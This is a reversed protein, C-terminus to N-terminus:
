IGAGVTPCSGAGCARRCAADVVRCDPGAISHNDPASVVTRASAVNQVGPACIIGAGVAPCSGAGGVCRLGSSLVNRHPGAAFRDDPASGIGATGTQAGAASIM